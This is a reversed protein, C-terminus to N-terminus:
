HSVFYRTCNTADTVAVHVHRRKMNKEGNAKHILHIATYNRMRLLKGRKYPTQKIKHNRRRHYETMTETCHMTKTGSECHARPIHLSDGLQPIDFVAAQQVCLWGAHEVEKVVRTICTFPMPAVPTLLNWQLRILPLCICTARTYTNFQSRIIFHFSSKATRRRCLLTFLTCEISRFVFRIDVVIYISFYPIQSAISVQVNCTACQM